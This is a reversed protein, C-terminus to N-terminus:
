GARGSRGRVAAAHGGAGRQALRAGPCDLLGTRDPLLQQLRDIEAPGVTSMEIVTSDSTLGGALGRDGETVARLAAPDALMTIVLEAAAAAEAPSDAATAGAEVLAHAREPTRNYVTLDHGAELLRAAMRSGMGGLGLFAISTM